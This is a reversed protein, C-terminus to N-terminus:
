DLWGFLSATEDYYRNRIDNAVFHTMSTLSRLQYYFDLAAESIDSRTLWWAKLDSREAPDAYRLNQAADWEKPGMCMSEWDILLIGEDTVMLNDNHLDGHLLGAPRPAIYYPSQAVEELKEILLPALPSSNGDLRVHAAHLFSDLSLETTWEPPTVAWLKEIWEQAIISGEHLELKRVAQKHEWITVWRTDGNGDVFELPHPVVPAITPIGAKLMAGAMYVDNIARFPLVKPRSVKIFTDAAKFHQNFSEGVAVPYAGTVDHILTRFRPDTTLNM